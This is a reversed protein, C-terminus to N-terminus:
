LEYTDGIRAVSLEGQFHPKAEKVYDELNFDPYLHTLILRKCSADQAIQAAEVNSLHGPAREVPLGEQYTGECIFLDAGQIFPQYPTHIGADAGYVLVKNGATFKMAYCPLNHDTKMFTIKLGILELPESVSLKHLQIAPEYLVRGILSSPTEEPFYLPLLSQRIGLKRYIMFAYKLVGIDAIHDEHLHSLLVADIQQLATVKQLQSIVGSGCDILLKGHKTELLYGATAGGPGPYPSQCGLITLKM